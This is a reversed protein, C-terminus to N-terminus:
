IIKNLLMKKQLLIIRLITHLLKKIAKVSLMHLFFPDETDQWFELGM